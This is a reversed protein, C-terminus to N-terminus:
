KCISLNSIEFEKPIEAIWDIDTTNKGIQHLRSVSIITVKSEGKFRIFDPKMNMECTRDNLNWRKWCIELNQIIPNLKIKDKGIVKDGLKYELIRDGDFDSPNNKVVLHGDKTIRANKRLFDICARRKSEAYIGISGPIFVDVLNKM